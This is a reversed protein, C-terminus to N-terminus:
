HKLLVFTLVKHTHRIHSQQHLKIGRRWSKRLKHFYFKCSIDNRAMFKINLHQLLSAKSASSLAMLFTLKYILDKDSLQSNVPM